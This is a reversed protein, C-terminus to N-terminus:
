VVGANDFYGFLLMQEWEPCGDFATVPEPPAVSLSFDLEGDPEVYQIFFSWDATVYGTSCFDYDTTLLQDLDWERGYVDGFTFARNLGRSCFYTHGGVTTVSADMSKSIYKQLYFAVAVPDNIRGLSCFGFKGAFGPWNVYNSNVLKLPHVGRIFGCLAEAPLGKILGHMHWAGDQHREPVLVYSISCGPKKNLDRIWQTFRERFSNLDHRDQLRKDLTGTFFWEWDNCMALQTVMSKARSISAVLKETNDKPKKDAAAFSVNDSRNFRIVKFFDERYQKITYDPRYVFSTAM